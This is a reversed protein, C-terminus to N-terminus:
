PAPSPEAFHGQHELVSATDGRRHGQLEAVDCDILSPSTVTRRDEWGSNGQEPINTRAGDLLRKRCRSERGPPPTVWVAPGRRGRRRGSPPRLAVSCTLSGRRGQIAFAVPRPSRTDNRDAFLEGPGGAPSRPAPSRRKFGGAEGGSRIGRRRYATLYRPNGIKKM